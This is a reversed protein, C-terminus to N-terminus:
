EFLSPVNVNLLSIITVCSTLMVLVVGFSELICMTLISKAEKKKKKKIKIDFGFAAFIRLGQSMDVVIYGVLLTPPFSMLSLARPLLLILFLYCRM